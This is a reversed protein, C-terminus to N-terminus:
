IDRFCIMCVTGPESEIYDNRGNIEQLRMVEKVMDDISNTEYM